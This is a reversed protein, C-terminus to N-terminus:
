SVLGCPVAARAGGACACAHRQWQDQRDAVDAALDGGEEAQVVQAAHVHRRLAEFSLGLHEHSARLGRLALGDAVASREQGLLRQRPVKERFFPGVHSLSKM